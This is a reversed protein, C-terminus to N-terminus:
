DSFECDIMELTEHFILTLKKQRLLSSNTKDSENRLSQDGIVATRAFTEKKIPIVKFKEQTEEFCIQGQQVTETHTRPM